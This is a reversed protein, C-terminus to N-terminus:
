LADNVFMNKARAGSSCRLYFVIKLSIQWTSFSPTSLTTPAWPMPFPISSIICPNDIAIDIPAVFCSKSLETAMWGVPLSSHTSM